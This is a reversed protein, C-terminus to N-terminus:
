SSVYYLRDYFQCTLYAKKKFNMLFDYTTKCGDIIQPGCFILKKEDVLFLNRDQKMMQINMQIQDNM